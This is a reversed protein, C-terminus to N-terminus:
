RPTKNGTPTTTKDKRAKPVEMTWAPYDNAALAQRIHKKETKKDEKTSVYEECRKNLTHVVSRKHELPHHSNFNFYQDTHTHKEISSSKPAKTM